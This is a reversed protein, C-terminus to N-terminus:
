CHKPARFNLWACGSAGSAECKPMSASSTILVTDMTGSSGFGADVGWGNKEGEDRGTGVSARAGFSDM